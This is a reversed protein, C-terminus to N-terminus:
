VNLGHRHHFDGAFAFDADAHDHCGRTAALMASYTRAHGFRVGGNWSFQDTHPNILETLM